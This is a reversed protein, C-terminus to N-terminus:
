TDDDHFNIRPRNGIRRPVVSEIALRIESPKTPLADRRFRFVATHRGVSTVEEVHFTMTRFGPKGSLTIPASYAFSNGSKALLDVPGDGVGTLFVRDLRAQNDFLSLVLSASLTFPNGIQESEQFDHDLVTRSFAHYGDSGEIVRIRQDASVDTLIDVQGSPWHIEIRDAQEANGLGFGVLFSKSGYGNGSTVDRIMRLGQAELVVRTGIATRNSEVGVPHLQLWHNEGGLNRYLVEASTFNSLLLDPFGDCDYDGSAVCSTAVQRGVNAEAGIESFTGNGNNRFLRDPLVGGFDALFIDVWGDNDFDAVAAEGTESPVGIGAQSGVEVFTGEGRNRYLLTSFDERSSVLLDLWGDNNYDLFAPGTIDRPSQAIGVQAAIDSFTGDGNNHYLASPM